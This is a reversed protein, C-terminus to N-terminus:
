FLVIDGVSMYTQSKNHALVFGSRRNGEWGYPMVVTVKGAM